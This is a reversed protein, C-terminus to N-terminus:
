RYPRRPRPRGRLLGRREAHHPLLPHTRIRRVTCFERSTADFNMMSPYLASRRLFTYLGRRYRDEGQSEVWADTSYPIDWVGPPQYPFVSPGGIKLSLLGAASLSVDRVMEAELRFRPGRSILRNYPDAQLLEPTVASDQKYAASTVILRHMAKMSWNRDMFEVALWDLLEPHSPPQGQSGFDESTEVIGRGFYQEWMRNMAVRATLPNDRSAVWRALGLRNPMADRPLPGLVAPVDAYVKEAKAAFGGRTRVFDYPRDFGPQEQMVLATVINLKDRQNKTEKLADRTAALSPAISRYFKALEERQAPTRKDAPTELIPRLTARAKVVQSPDAAATLSVRFRGMAQGLFDSDQRISIRILKKGELAVPSPPVLVL